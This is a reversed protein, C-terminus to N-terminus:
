RARDADALARRGAIVQDWEAEEADTLGPNGVPPKALHKLRRDVAKYAATSSVDDSKLAFVLRVARYVTLSEREVLVRATADEISEHKGAVSPPSPWAPLGRANRQAKAPRASGEDHAAVREPPLLEHAHRLAALVHQLRMAMDAAEATTTCASPALARRAGAQANVLAVLFASRGSRRERLAVQRRAAHEARELLVHEAQKALKSATSNVARRRTAM